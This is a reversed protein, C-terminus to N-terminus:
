HEVRAWLRRKALWLLISTIGLYLLVQWGMRKRQDLKPEATWMLFATVDRAYQDKTAATGDSYKVMKDDMPPPAMAIQYGPFSRNFNMGEAMVLPVMKGSGDDVKFGAPMKGDAPYGTLLAHIYDPGGEQYGTVIDTAWKVPEKYWATEAHASRAKAMLSLDPPLAGNYMSRADQENKYPALMIPDSPRGPRQVVKGTDLIDPFSSAKALEKVVAESFGPGGADGLNRYKVLRLNHCAACVEKYVQFGRQLQAQDFHGMFGGFSWKQHATHADDGGGAAMAAGPLMTLAAVAAFQRLKQRPILRFFSM